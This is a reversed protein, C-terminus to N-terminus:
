QVIVFYLIDYNNYINCNFHVELISFIEELSTDSLVKNLNQFMRKLIEIFDQLSMRITLSDDNFLM